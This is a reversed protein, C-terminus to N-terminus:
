ARFPNRVEKQFNQLWQNAQQKAEAKPDTYLTQLAALVTEMGSMATQAGKRRWSLLHRVGPSSARSAAVPGKM